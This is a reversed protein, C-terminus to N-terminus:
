INKKSLSGINEQHSLKKLFIYLPAFPSGDKGILLEITM